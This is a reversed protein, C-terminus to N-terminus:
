VNLNSTVVNSNIKLRSQEMNIGRNNSFLRFVSILNTLSALIKIKVDEFLVLQYSLINIQHLFGYPIEGVHGRIQVNLCNKIMLCKIVNDLFFKIM